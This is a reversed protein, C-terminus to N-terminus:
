TTGGIATTHRWRPHRPRSGALQSHDRPSAGLRRQLGRELFTADMGVALAAALGLYVAAVALAHAPPVRHYERAEPTNREKWRRWTELGGFLLILLM